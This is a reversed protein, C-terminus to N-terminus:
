NNEDGGKKTEVLIVGNAGRSGYIAASGDKIISISKVLLPSIALLDESDSVVGDVVILASSSTSISNRGRIIIEGNRIQVGAFHSILLDQMDTYRSFSEYDSKLSNVATTKDKESIYGYGIANELYQEGPRIKLNVAVFKTNPAVKVNQGYFGKARIKLKDEAYCTVTFQGTSDTKVTQKTSKVKIEVGIMPINEFVHVAGRVLHDQAHNLNSILILFLILGTRKM